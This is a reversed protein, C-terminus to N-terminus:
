ATCESLLTKQGQGFITMKRVKLTTRFLKTNEVMLMTIDRVLLFLRKEETWDHLKQNQVFMMIHFFYHICHYPVSFIRENKMNKQLIEVKSVYFNLTVM